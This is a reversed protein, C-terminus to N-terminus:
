RQIQKNGQKVLLAADKAGLKFEGELNINVAQSDATRRTSGDVMPSSFGRTDISTVSSGASASGGGIGSFASVVGAVGAAIAALNAPFPLSSGAAVAGGISQSFLAPIMQAVSSIVQAAVNAFTAITSDGMTATIQGVSGMVSGYASLATQTQMLQDQTGLLSNQLNTQTAKFVDSEALTGSTTLKVPIEFGTEEAILKSEFASIQSKFAAKSSEDVALLLNIRLDSLQSKLLDIDKQNPLSVPSRTSSMLADPKTIGKSAFNDVGKIFKIEKLFKLEEKLATIKQNSFALDEGTATKVVDQYGEIEAKVTKINRIESSSAEGRKLIETDILAIMGKTKGARLAELEKVSKSEINFLGLIRVEEESIRKNALERLRSNLKERLKINTDVEVQADKLRNAIARGGTVIDSAAFLLGQGIFDSKSLQELKKLSKTYENELNELEINLARETDKGSNKIGEEIGKFANAARGEGFLGIDAGTLSRIMATGAQAVDRMAGQASQLKLILGEWSSSLQKLDGDLNDINIAQQELATNTDKVKSLYDDFSAAGDILAKAANINLIGFRNTLENVSLQEGQLAHLQKSLGEAGTGYKASDKALKVLVQRFQLGATTPEAIKPAITEIGAVLGAFELKVANATGGAKEIAANLFSINGAGFKSGAALINIFENASEAGKGMQNLSGTLATAAQVVDINAAEALIIAQETVATLAEKSQLLEPKKSGILTFADAVQSATQTTTEGMRKAESGYFKLEDKTVGTLSRLTSLSKEFKINTQIAKKVGAIVATFAFYGGIATGIKKMSSGFGKAQKESSKLGAKFGNNKLGLSVFMRSVINSM